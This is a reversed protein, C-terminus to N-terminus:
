VGKSLSDFLAQMAQQYIPSTKVMFDHKRKNLAVLADDTLDDYARSVNDNPTRGADRETQGISASLDSKGSAKLSFTM